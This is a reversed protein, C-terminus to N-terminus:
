PEKLPVVHSARFRMTPTVEVAVAAAPPSGRYKAAIGWYLPTAARIM